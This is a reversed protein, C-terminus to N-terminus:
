EQPNQRRQRMANSIIRIGDGILGLVINAAIALLIVTILQRPSPNDLRAFHAIAISLFGVTVVHTIASDRFSIYPLNLLKEPVQPSLEQTYRSTTILKDNVIHTYAEHLHPNNTDISLDFPASFILLHHLQALEVDTLGKLKSPLSIHKGNQAVILKVTQREQPRVRVTVIDNWKTRTVGGDLSVSDATVRVWNRLHESVELKISESQTQPRGKRYDAVPDAQFIAQFPNMLRPIEIYDGDKLPHIHLIETGNVLVKLRSNNRTLLYQKGNYEVYLGRRLKVQEDQKLWISRKPVLIRPPYAGDPQPLFQVEITPLSPKKAFM